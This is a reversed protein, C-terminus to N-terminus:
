RTLYFVEVSFWPHETLDVYAAWNDVVIADQPPWRDSQAPASTATTVSRQILRAYNLM